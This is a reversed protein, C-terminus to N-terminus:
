SGGPRAAPTTGTGAPGTVPAVGLRLLERLLYAGLTTSYLRTIHHGDKFVLVGGVVAFCRRAGCFFPTLDVLRVRPSHLERAAVAAPDRLLRGHRPGTCAEAAPAHHAMARLVCSMAHPPARPTDRLVVVHRVSAPLAAWAAKYGEVEARFEDQGPGTLVPFRSTVQGVMVTTVEPHRPFWGLVDRKWALCGSRDPEPLLKVAVSLPCHSRGLFLARWGETRAAVGIAARWHGAHSDGVVALTSTAGEAPAGFTCVTAGGFQEIPTCPEPPTIEALRPDPTVVRRLGPNVCPHRLDRSGAGFCRPAAPAGALAPAGLGAAVALAVVTLWARGSPAMARLM